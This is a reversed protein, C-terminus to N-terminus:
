INLIDILFSGCYLKNKFRGNNALFECSIVITKSKYVSSKERKETSYNLRQFKNGFYGEPCEIRSKGNGLSAEKVVWSGLLSLRFMRLRTMRRRRPQISYFGNCMFPIIMISEDHEYIINIEPWCMEIEARDSEALLLLLLLGDMQRIHQSGVDEHPWAM